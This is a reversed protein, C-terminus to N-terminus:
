ITRRRSLTDGLTALGASLEVPYPEADLLRQAPPLAARQEAARERATALRGGGIREGDRMVPRLLPEAGPPGPEGALAITDGAFRGDRRLRWVQKADPLTAKRASLKLVPRGDYAVLKYTADLYPADASVGLRSGVGFGDIPAGGGLLRALEHEDLNGSAFVVVDPLGAEDLVRRVEKSLALLDGSDLRVGALRAGGGVARQARIAARAGEVTDYTDIVLTAGAPNSRLFAEFAAQESEFCEVYSHAMTGAAPIGFVADALVNSTADFGALYSARAVKLGAECGHTRRLGFEVLRRGGAADVSRAAKSAILTQLHLENLLVTEVLQAELLPATVSLVPERPFFVTGEPMARVEGTFRLRELRDLFPAGFLGTRELHALDGATFRLAELYSLADALGAAVFYGWSAPLTRITLEFTAPREAMGEDVYGAAMTLEYLDVLLASAAANADRAAPGDRATDTGPEADPATM